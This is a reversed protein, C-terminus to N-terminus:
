ILERMRKTFRFSLGHQGAEVDSVEFVAIYGTRQFPQVDDERKDSTLIVLGGKRIAAIYEDWKRDGLVAGLDLYTM